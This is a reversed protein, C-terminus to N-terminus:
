FWSKVKSFFGGEKKTEEPKEELKEETKIDSVQSEEVMVERINEQKQYTNSKEMFRKDSASLSGPARVPPKETKITDTKKLEITDDSVSDLAEDSPPVLEFTPPVSLPPNKLVSYEDPSTHGIGLSRKVDNSCSSACLVLLAAAALKFYKEM